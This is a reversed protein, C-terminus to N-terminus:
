HLSAMYGIVPLSVTYYLFHGTLVCAPGLVSYLNYMGYITVIYSTIEPRINKENSAFVKGM